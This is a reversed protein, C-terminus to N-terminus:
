DINVCVNLSSDFLQQSSCCYQGVCTGTSSIGWPNSDTESTSTSTSSTSPPQFNFNYEQYNMNDRAVISSFRRWIFVAGIVSIIGILANFLISPLTISNNIFIVCMILSLMIVICKLLQTHEEYKDTFYGNIEVQRLKDITNTQLMELRQKSQNLGDEVIRIASMQEDMTDNASATNEHIDSMKQAHLQFMSMRMDSLQNIRTIIKERQEPTLSNLELQNFLDQETQQLIKIDNAIQDYGEEESLM